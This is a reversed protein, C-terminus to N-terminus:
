EATASIYDNQPNNEFTVVPEEGGRGGRKRSRRRCVCYVVVAVLCLVAVITVAIAAASASRRFVIEFSDFRAVLTTGLNLTIQM